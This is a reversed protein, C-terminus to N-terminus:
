GLTSLKEERIFWIVDGDSIALAGCVERVLTVSAAGAERQLVSEVALVAPKNADAMIILTVFPGM